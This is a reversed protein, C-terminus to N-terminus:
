RIGRNSSLRSWLTLIFCKMIWQWNLVNKWICIRNQRLDHDNIASCGCKRFNVNKFKTVMHCFNPRLIVDKPAMTVLSTLDLHFMENNVTLKTCKKLHLDSKTKFRSWKWLLQIICRNLRAFSQRLILVPHFPVVIDLACHSSVIKPVFYSLIHHRFTQDCFSMKLRWPSWVLWL